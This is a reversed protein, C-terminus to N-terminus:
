RAPNEQRGAFRALYRVAGPIDQFARFADGGELLCDGTDLVHDAGRVTMPSFM